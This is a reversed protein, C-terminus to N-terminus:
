EFNLLSELFAGRRDRSLDVGVVGLRQSIMQVNELFAVEGSDNVNIILKKNRFNPVKDALDDGDLITVYSNGRNLRAEWAKSIGTALLLMGETKWLHLDVEDAVKELRETDSRGHGTFRQLLEKIM